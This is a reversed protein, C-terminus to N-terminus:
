FTVMNRPNRKFLFFCIHVISYSKQLPKAACFGGISKIGPNPLDGPSPFPLGSWYEQRSFGLSPPAQHAATQPTVCLRVRSFHSLLLIHIHASLVTPLNQPRPLVGYFSHPAPGELGPVPLASHQWLLPLPLRSAHAGAPLIPPLLNGHAQYPAM